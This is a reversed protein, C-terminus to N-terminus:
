QQWVSTCLVNEEDKSPLISLHIPYGIYSVFRSSATCNVKIDELKVQISFAYPAPRLLTVFDATATLSEATYSPLVLFGKLCQSELQLGFGVGYPITDGIPLQASQRISWFM